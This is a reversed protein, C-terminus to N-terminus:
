PIPEPQKSPPETVDASARRAGGRAGPHLPPHGEHAPPQPRDPDRRLQAAPPPSPTFWELGNALWPDPGARRGKRISWVVNFVTVLAGAALIFSGVTSIVNYETLGSGSYESIRRPMGSLGASYQPLFTVNFGIVM